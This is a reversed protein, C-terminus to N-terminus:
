MAFKCQEIADDPYGFHFEPLKNISEMVHWVSELVKTHSLGHKGMLNYTSGGVFYCLACALHAM